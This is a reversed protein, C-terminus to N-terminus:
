GRKLGRKKAKKKVAKKKAPKKKAAKKKVKKVKKKKVAKKVKKKATKPAKAPATQWRITKADHFLKDLAYFDRAQPHMIHVLLGGYDLVRWIDSQKGDRHNLTEGKAKLALRISEEIAKMHAPSTASVVLLYDSIESVPKIHLLNINDGKKDDAARAALTAVAKYHKAQEEVTPM